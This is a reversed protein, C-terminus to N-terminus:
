IKSTFRKSDLMKLHDGQHDEIESPFVDNHEVEHQHERAVRSIGHVIPHKRLIRHRGAWIPFKLFPQLIDETHDHVQEVGQGDTQGEHLIEAGGAILVM